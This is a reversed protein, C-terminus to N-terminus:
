ALLRLVLTLSNCEFSDRSVLQDNGPCVFKSLRVRIRGAQDEELLCGQTVDISSRIEPYRKARVLIDILQLAIDFALRAPVPGVRDVYRAIEEGDSFPHVTYSLGEDQGTELIPLLGPHNFGPLMTQLKHYFAARRAAPHDQDGLYVNLLARQQRRADYGLFTHM